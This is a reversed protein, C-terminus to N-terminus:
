WTWRYLMQVQCISSDTRAPKKQMTTKVWPLPKGKPYWWNHLSNLCTQYGNQATMLLGSTCSRLWEYLTFPLPYVQCDCVVTENLTSMYQGVNGYHGPQLVVDTVKVWKYHRSLSQAYFNTVPIITQKTYSVTGYNLSNPLPKKNQLRLNLGLHSGKLNMTSLNVISFNKHTNWKQPTDYSDLVCM